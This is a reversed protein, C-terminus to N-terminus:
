ASAACDWCRIKAILLGTVSELLFTDRRGQGLKLMLSVPTDTDAILRTWLVQSEGRDYRAAFDKFDPEILVRDTDWAAM